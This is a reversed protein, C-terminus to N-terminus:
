SGGGSLRAWRELMAAEASAEPGRREGSATGDDRVQPRSGAPVADSGCRVAGRSARRGSGWRWVRPAWCGTVVATGVWPEAASPSSGIADSSYSSGRSGGALGALSTSGDGGADKFRSTRSHNPSFGLRGAPIKPRRPPRRSTRRGPRPWPTIGPPFKGLATPTSSIALYRCGESHYKKGTDAVYVM